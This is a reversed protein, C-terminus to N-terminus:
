SQKQPWLYGKVDFYSILDHVTIIYPVVKLFFGYRGLHHNSLHVIGVLRNLSAILVKM